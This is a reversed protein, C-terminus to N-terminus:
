ALNKIFEDSNLILSVSDSLFSRLKAEKAHLKQVDNNTGSLTQLQLTVLLYAVMISRKLSFYQQILKKYKDMSSTNSNYKNIDTTIVDKIITSIDAETLLRNIGIIQKQLEELGSETFTELVKIYDNKDASVLDKLTLDKNFSIHKIELDQDKSFIVAPKQGDEWVLKLDKVEFVFKKGTETSM